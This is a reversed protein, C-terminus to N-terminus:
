RLIYGRTEMKTRVGAHVADVETDTLTKDNRQYALSFALSRCGDPIGKGSYIDFLRISRLLEGGESRIAASVEEMPSDVPVILSIDRYVPPFPSNERFVPLSEKVLPELDLEFAYVPSCEIDKEIAPKLRLLYGAARGANMIVATQGKHGFPEEGQEFDLSVGRSEALALIDGKLSFLDDAGAPGFPLRPDRGGYVLGSIREVEEHGGEDLPLFVRGLEFIRVPAKWGAQVSLEVSRLLGPLLTTRMKSQEASLPNALELPRARRDEPPLRLLGVFSPALFSYNVLEVYGRSLLITRIGGKVRTIEGIDGRGFLAQPLRPVLTENYGRIRGVEEILDEEIIIDPRWSPVSFVRKGEESATQRLGLRGLIAAAGDMDGTLLIKRLNKETLVVERRAPEVSVATKFVYGTEAAGWEKLLSAIFNLALESLNSDVTRAYRFAAESNIGLRRSTRSVRIADFSASEIFVTQTEPLIDSNEGGMVGALGIAEGASTILLDSDELTHRKGDLTTIEEGPKASRVTIEPAALRGADFAHTPQGLTLMAINTADVMGSIPRMGLFTLAIRTKLPSPVPKLGTALGLCYKSCGDDRLSIGGFPVPWDDTREPPAVDAPNKKWEAGPFLAYVERAVGLLSLLDGRNPTISLDLIADDLGFLRVVDGGVPSDGPLRLIGFEDAAEPVGLEEASLLMGESSVSGFERTGLVTGDALVSGPRGYPVRDGESLNPAATVVVATGIGDRVSAVFLNEKEPHRGLSEIHAVQVDKVMACPREVSEVECGTLTLREAVEELTAPISLTENLMNWSILM